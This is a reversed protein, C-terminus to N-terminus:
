GDSPWYSLEEDAADIPDEDPDYAVAKTADKAEFYSLGKNRLRARFKERWSWENMTGGGQSPHEDLWKLYGEEDDVPEPPDFMGM